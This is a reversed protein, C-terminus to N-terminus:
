HSKNRAADRIQKNKKVPMPTFWFWLSQRQRESDGRNIAQKSSTQLSFFCIQQRSLDGKWGRVEDYVCLPWQKSVYRRQGLLAIFVCTQSSILGFFFAFLDVLLDCSGWGLRLKMKLCSSFCIPWTASVLLLSLLVVSCLHNDDTWWTLFALQPASAIIHLIIPCYHSLSSHGEAAQRRWGWRAPNQSPHSCQHDIPANASM